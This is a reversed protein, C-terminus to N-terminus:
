LGTYYGGGYNKLTSKAFTLSHIQQELINREISSLPICVTNEDQVKVEKEIIKEVQVELVEPNIAKELMSKVIIEINENALDPYIMKFHEIETSFNKEMESFTFDNNENEKEVIETKNEIQNSLSKVALDLLALFVEKASTFEVGSKQKIEALDSNIKEIETDHLNIAYTRKGIKFIDDM